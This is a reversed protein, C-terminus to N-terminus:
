GVTLDAPALYRTPKECLSKWGQSSLARPLSTNPFEFLIVHCELHIVRESFNEDFDTQSKSDRFRDRAPLFPLSSSSSGRRTIPTKSPVSKKPAM